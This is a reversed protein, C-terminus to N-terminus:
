LQSATQFVLCSDWAVATLRLHHMIVDLQVKLPAECAFIVACSCRLSLSRGDFSVTTQSPVCTRAVPRPQWKACNAASRPRGVTSAGSQRRGVLWVERETRLVSRRWINKAHEQSEAARDKLYRSQEKPLANKLLAKISNQDLTGRKSSPAGANGSFDVVDQFHLSKDTKKM